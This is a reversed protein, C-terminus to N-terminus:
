YKPKLTWGQERKLVVVMLIAYPGKVTMKKICVAFLFYFFQKCVQNISESVSYDKNVPHLLYYKILCKTEVRMEGIHAEAPKRM